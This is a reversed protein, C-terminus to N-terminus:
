CWPSPREFMLCVNLLFCIWIWCEINIPQEHMRAEMKPDNPHEFAIQFVDLLFCLKDSPNRFLRQGGKHWTGKKGAELNYLQRFAAQLRNSNCKTLEVRRENSEDHNGQYRLTTSDYPPLMQYGFHDLFRHFAM